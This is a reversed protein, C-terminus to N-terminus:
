WRQKSRNKNLANRVFVHLKDDPDPNINIIATVDNSILKVQSEDKKGPIRYGLENLREAVKGVHQLEAYLKIAHKKMDSPQYEEYLKIYEEYEKIRKKAESIKM